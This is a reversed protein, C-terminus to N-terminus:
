EEMGRIRGSDRRTARRERGGKRQLKQARLSVGQDEDMQGYNQGTPAVRAMDSMLAEWTGPNAERDRQASAFGEWSDVLNPYTNEMARGSLANDRGGVKVWSGNVQTYAAGAWPVAMRNHTGEGSANKAGVQIDRLDVGQDARAKLLEAAGVGSVGPMVKMSTKKAM